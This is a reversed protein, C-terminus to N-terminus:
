CSEVVSDYNAASAMTASAETGGGCSTCGRTSDGSPDCSSGAKGDTNHCGSRTNGCVHNHSGGHAATPDYRDDFSGQPLLRMRQTPMLIAVGADSYIDFCHNAFNLM